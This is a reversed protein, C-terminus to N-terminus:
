EAARREKSAMRQQGQTLYRDWDSLPKWDEDIFRSELAHAGDATMWPGTQGDPLTCCPRIQGDLTKWGVVPYAVIESGFKLVVRHVVGPAPHFNM